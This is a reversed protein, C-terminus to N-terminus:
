PQHVDTPLCMCNRMRLIGALVRRAAMVRVTATASVSLKLSKKMLLMIGASAHLKKHPSTHGHVSEDPRGTSTHPHRQLPLATSSLRVRGAVVVHPVRIILAIAHAVRIVQVVQFSTCGHLSVCIENGHTESQLFTM